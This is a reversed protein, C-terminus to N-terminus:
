ATKSELRGSMRASALLVLVILVYAYGIGLAISLPFLWHGPRAPEGPEGIPLFWLAVLALIAVVIPWVLFLTHLAANSRARRLLPYLAFLSLAYVPLGLMHAYGLAGVFNAVSSIDDPLRVPVTFFFLVVLWTLVGIIIPVLTAGFYFERLTVRPKRWADAADGLASM